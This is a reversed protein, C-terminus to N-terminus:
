KKACKSKRYYKYLKWKIYIRGIEYRPNSVGLSSNLLLKLLQM